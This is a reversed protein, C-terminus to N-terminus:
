LQDHALVDDLTEREVVVRAAGDRVMVVAPRTFRNYNSAMAQNYAGTSQVALLDGSRPRAIPTDWILIDTECHKGAVTFIHDAEQDAHNALLCEYRADYLQPRPNDSMGGDIAVYTRVGPVDKIAGITYLTTGAEGVIFRGPEQLLKPPKLGKEELQGLLCSVVREAFADPSPPDHERLYRIGLGGGINLEEVEVGQQRKV